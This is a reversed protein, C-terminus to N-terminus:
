LRSSRIGFTSCLLVLPLLRPRQSLCFEFGSTRELVFWAFTAGSTSLGSFRVKSFLLTM